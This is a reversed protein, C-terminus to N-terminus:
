DVPSDVRIGDPEAALAPFDRIAAAKAAELASRRRADEGVLRDDGSYGESRPGPEGNAYMATYYGDGDDGLKVVVHDIASQQRETMAKEQQNLRACLCALCTFRRRGTSRISEGGARAPAGCDDCRLDLEEPGLVVPILV